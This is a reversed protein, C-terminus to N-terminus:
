LPLNASLQLLVFIALFGFQHRLIQFVPVSYHVLKFLYRFDLLVLLISNNTVLTLSFTYLMKRSIKKRIRISYQKYLVLQCLTTAHVYKADDITM